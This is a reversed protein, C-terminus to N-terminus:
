RIRGETPTPQLNAAAGMCSAGLVIKSARHRTSSIMAFLLCPSVTPTSALSARQLFHVTLAIASSSVLPQLRGDWVSCATAPQLQTQAKIVTNTCAHMFAYVADKSDSDLSFFEIMCHERCCQRVILPDAVPAHQEGKYM